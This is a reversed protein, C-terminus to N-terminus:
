QILQLLKEDVVEQSAGFPIQDVVRGERDLLYVSV